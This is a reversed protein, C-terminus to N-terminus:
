RTDAVLWFPADDSIRCGKLPCPLNKHYAGCVVAARLPFPALSCAVRRPKTSALQNRAIEIGAAGGRGDMPMCRGSPGASMIRRDCSNVIHPPLLFTQDPYRDNTILTWDHEDHADVVM